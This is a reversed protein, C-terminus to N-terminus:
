GGSSQHYPQSSANPPPPGITNFRAKQEDSLSAYFDALKPRITKMADVMGNLRMGVSDLRAVPTQPMQTPCSAKFQEAAIDSTKKLDDFAGQQQANPAVVQEIRQVPVNVGGAQQSCMKALNGGAASSREGEGRRSSGIADFRQRQEGSLSDYFKELPSRVIQVAQIMADLRKEAADLRGVPTLPIEKPCSEEVMATVKSSASSLDDLAADQEATPRVVQRIQEIPLDAVGPALGRCSQMAEVNTQALAARELRRSKTVHHGGAYGYGGGYYIGPFGEYAYYDPGYGYDPGFHPGPAFISALVFDPGFAWFPDYYDYPYLVFSAIDGFLFPWFVPGAWGGWGSGWNNWGSGWFRGGWRNWAQGNGFANRNFGTRTFNNLGRFHQAAFQQHSGAAFNHAALGNRDAL